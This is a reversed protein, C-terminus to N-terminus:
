GLGLGSEGRIKDVMVRIMDTVIARARVMGMCRARVWIYVGGKNYSQGKGYGQAARGRLAEGIVYSDSKTGDMVIQM